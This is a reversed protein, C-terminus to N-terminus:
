NRPRTRSRLRTVEPGVKRRDKTHPANPMLAQKETPAWTRWGRRRTWPGPRAQRPTPTPPSLHPASSAGQSSEHRFSSQSDRKFPAPAIKMITPCTQSTKRPKTKTVHSLTPDTNKISIEIKTGSM